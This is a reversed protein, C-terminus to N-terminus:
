CKWKSLCHLRGHETWGVKADKNRFMDLCVKVVESDYHVSSKETIEAMAVELGLSPRYPRHSAMAELVDAVCLIRAELLIDEGRLGLPYGSGDYKEHHQQVIQAIPWSFSINKLIDHGVQSHMKMMMFEVENLRGPKTLIESPISIKGIDHLLGATRIGEVREEPLGMEHAISCALQAVRQQHGATYPDRYEAAGSLADVIGNLVTTLQNLSNELAAKIAKHSSVDRLIGVFYERGRTTTSSITAEVPLHTGDKRTISMESVGESLSLFWSTASIIPSKNGCGEEHCSHFKVLDDIRGGISKGAPHQFLRESAPNWFQVVGERDVMVVADKASSLIKRFREESEKLANETLKRRIIGALLDVMSLLFNEEKESQLGDDTRFVILLGLICEECIIPIAYHTGGWHEARHIIEGRDHTAEMAQPPSSPLSIGCPCTGPIAHATIERKKSTNDDRAHVVIGLGPDPPIVLIFGEQDLTQWPGDLVVDLIRELQRELTIPALSIRLVAGMIEQIRHAHRLERAENGNTPDTSKPEPQKEATSVNM